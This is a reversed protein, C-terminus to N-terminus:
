HGVVQSEVPMDEIFVSRISSPGGRQLGEIDQALRIGPVWASFFGDDIWRGM